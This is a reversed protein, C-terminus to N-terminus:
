IHILSLYLLTENFITDDSSVYLIKKRLVKEQYLDANIGNLLMEGQDPQYLLSIVKCFTSKGAGNRGEIYIKQGRHISMNADKLVYDTKNYSFAINKLQLKQFQVDRIKNYPIAKQRLEHEVHEKDAELSQEVKHEEFDFFRNLIVKYEQLDLNQAILSSFSGIVMGALSSFTIIMGLSLSNHLIMERSAFVMIVLGSFLSIFSSLVSNFLSFYKSKTRIRILDEIRRHIEQSSQEELNMAKIVQMGEMKELFKSFYTAKIIHREKELREVIPTFIFYLILYLSLIFLTFLALQWNMFILVILSITGTISDVVMSVFTSTFFSKVSRADSLRETM